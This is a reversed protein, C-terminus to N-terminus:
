TPWVWMVTPTPPEQYLDLKTTKLTKVDGHYELGAVLPRLTANFLNHSIRLDEGGKKIDEEEMGKCPPRGENGGDQASIFFNHGLSHYVCYPAQQCRNAM